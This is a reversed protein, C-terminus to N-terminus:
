QNEFASKTSSVASVSSKIQALDISKLESSVKQLQAKVAPDTVKSPRNNRYVMVGVAAILVLIVLPLVLHLHGRQTNTIM